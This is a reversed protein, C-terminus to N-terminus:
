YVFLDHICKVFKFKIGVIKNLYNLIFIFTKSLIM